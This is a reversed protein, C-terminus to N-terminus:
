LNMLFGNNINQPLNKQFLNKFYQDPQGGGEETYCLNSAVM